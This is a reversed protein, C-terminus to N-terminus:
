RIILPTWRPCLPLGEQVIHRNYVGCRQQLTCSSFGALSSCVSIRAHTVSATVPIPWGATRCPTIHQLPDVRAAPRRAATCCRSAAM